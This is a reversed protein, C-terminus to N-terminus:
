TYNRESAPSKFDKKGCPSHPNLDRGPCLTNHHSAAESFWGFPRRFRLGIISITEHLFCFVFFTELNQMALAVVSHSGIYENTVKAASDM